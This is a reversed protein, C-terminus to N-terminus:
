YEEGFSLRMYPALRDIIGPPVAEMRYANSQRQGTTDSALHGKMRRQFEWACWELCAMELDRPIASFGAAYEACIVKRGKIFNAKDTRFILGSDYWQYYSTDILTTDTFERDADEYLAIIATVPRERLYIFGHYGDGDHYETYNAAIFTQDCRNQIQKTVGPLIIDSLVTDWKTDNADINLWSKLRALTSLNSGAWPAITQTLSTVEIHQSTSTAFAADGTRTLSFYFIYVGAALTSTSTLSFSWDGDGRWTAASTGTVPSTVFRDDLDTDSRSFDYYKGDSIRKISVVCADTALSTRFFQVLNIDQGIARYGAFM